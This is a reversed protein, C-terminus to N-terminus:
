GEEKDEEILRRCWWRCQMFGVGLGLWRVQHKLRYEQQEPVNQNQEKRQQQQQNTRGANGKQRSNPAATQLASLTGKDPMDEANEAAELAASAQGPTSMM